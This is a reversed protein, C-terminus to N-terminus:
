INWKFGKNEVIVKEGFYFMIGLNQMFFSNFCLSNFIFLFLKEFIVLNSFLLLGQVLEYPPFFCGQYCCLIFLESQFVTNCM